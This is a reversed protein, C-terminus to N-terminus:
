LVNSNTQGVIFCSIPGHLTPAAFAGQLLLTPAAMLLMIAAAAAAGITPVSPMGVIKKKISYSM